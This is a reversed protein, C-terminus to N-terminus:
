IFIIGLIIVIVLVIIVHSKRLTAREEKPPLLRDTEVPHKSKDIIPEFPLPVYAM